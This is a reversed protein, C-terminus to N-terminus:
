IDYSPSPPNKREDRGIDPKVGSDNRNGTLATHNYNRGIFGGRSPTRCAFVDNATVKEGKFACGEIPGLNYGVIGGVNSEGILYSYSSVNGSQVCSALTSNGDKYGVVGGTHSSSTFFSFSYVNGSSSCDEITSYTSSGAIGGTYSTLPYLPRTFYSYSSVDGSSVCGIMKGSNYGIGGAGSIGGCFSSYSSVKGGFTCNKVIGGSAAVGGAFSGGGLSRASVDGSSACGTINGFNYGAIGGAISSGGNSYASIYGSVTCGEITGNNWGAIGGVHAGDGSYSSYVYVNTLNVGKVIGKDPIKDFLGANFSRAVVTMNAITHGRGDLTVSIRDNIPTWKRGALDIDGALSITKGYFNRIRENGNVLKAFGAFEKASNITFDTKEPNAYYWATDAVDIWNGNTPPPSKTRGACGESMFIFMIGLVMVILIAWLIRSRKQM